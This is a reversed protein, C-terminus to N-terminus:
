RSYRLQVYVTRPTPDQLNLIWFYAGQSVLTNPIKSPSIWKGALSYICNGLGRLDVTGGGFSPAGNQAQAGTTAPRAFNQPINKLFNTAVSSAGMQALQEANMVDVPSGIDEFSDHKVYSGTVTFGTLRVPAEAQSAPKDEAPVAQSGDDPRTNAQQHGVPASQVQASVGVPGAALALLVFCVSPTITTKKM